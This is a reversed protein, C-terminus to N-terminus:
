ALLEEGRAKRRRLEALTNRNSMGKSWAPRMEFHSQDVLSTWNGGWELGLEEGLVGVAKYKPSDRLYRGGEFVGIDFAIGFNHTSQGGHANTVIKEGRVARRGRAYLADQEAYSRFGSLINIQIGHELAKFFLARALPRVSPLLRAIERESRENTRDGRGIFAPQPDSDPRVIRHYIAGWTEPGAKGDVAVELERQIRRIMEDTKM